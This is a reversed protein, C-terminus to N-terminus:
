CQKKFDPGQFLLMGQSSAQFVSDWAWELGWCILYKLPQPGATQEKFFFFFFGGPSESEHWLKLTMLNLEPRAQSRFPITQARLVDTSRGLLQKRPFMFGRDALLVVHSHATISPAPTPHDNYTIYIPNPYGHFNAQPAHQLQTICM